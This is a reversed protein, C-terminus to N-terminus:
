VERLLEDMCKAIMYGKETYKFIIGTLLKEKLLNKRELIVCQTM